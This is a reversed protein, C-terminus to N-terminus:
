AVYNKVCKDVPEHHRMTNHHPTTRFIGSTTICRPPHPRGEEEEEEEEDTMSTDSRKHQPHPHDQYWREHHCLSAVVGPETNMDAFLHRCECCFSATSTDAFLLRCQACFNLRDGPLSPMVVKVADNRQKNSHDSRCKFCACLSTSTERTTGGSVVSSVLVFHHAQKKTTEM